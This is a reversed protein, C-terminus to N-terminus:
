CKNHFKIKKFFFLITTTPFLMLLEYPIKSITYKGISYFISDFQNFIAFLIITYIVGTIHMLFIGKISYMLFKYSSLNNIKRLKNINIILPYMGLLYGFNPTLLYGISGGDHFVPLLFLGILLYITYSNIIISRSLIVALIIITPVQLSMPIEIINLINNRNPILIYIQIMISIIILETSIILEILKSKNLM